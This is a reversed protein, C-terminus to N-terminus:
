LIFSFEQVKNLFQEINQSTLIQCTKHHSYDIKNAGDFDNYKGKEQEKLTSTFIVQNPLASFRNIVNKEKQTSLEGDRFADMVIPFNHNLIKAFAYLKSLYFEVEESGSYVENRITFLQDFKLKGEPDIEKYFKNMESLIRSLIDKKSTINGKQKLKASEMTDKYNAINKDIEEIRTDVDNTNILESKYLLLSELSVDDEQLLINLEEQKKKIEVDLKIIEEKNTEIRTEISTLINKRIEADSADFSIDNKKNLYGIHSSKCDLCIIKGESFSRNLSGLEELLSENKLKKNYCRNREKKLEIIENKKCELQSLKKLLAERDQTYSAMKMAPIDKKLIQNQKLLLKKEENLISIKEKLKDTDIDSPKYGCGMYSYIMNVFDDKNCYSSNFIKSTDRSDQGVFFLQIFLDLEVMKEKNDKFIVPLKYIRKDFFRKFDSVSDYISFSKEDKVIFTKDKRCISFSDNNIEIDAIFYYNKYEFGSPFIPENGLVYYLGQAVITKGKNNDDSFIINLRPELQEEIYAEEKNGIYLRKFIM